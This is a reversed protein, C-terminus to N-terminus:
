GSGWRASSRTRSPRAPSRNGGEGPFLWDGRASNELHPRFIDIFRQILASTTASLPFELDVRNKTDYHPFSLHFPEHDGGPRTLNVGLRIAMLNGVRVPARTLLLIQIAITALAAAKRPSRNLMAEAERMLLPPLETVRGWVDSVMIARIVALNKGTMAPPRDEELRVRIDDLQSITEELAGIEKALARLKWGLDIVFVKPTAGGEEL